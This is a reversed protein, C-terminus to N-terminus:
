PEAYFRLTQLILLARTKKRIIDHNSNLSQLEKWRLQNDLGYQGDPIELVTNRKHNSM